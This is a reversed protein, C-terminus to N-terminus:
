RNGKVVTMLTGQKQAPFTSITPVDIKESPQREWEAAPDTPSTPFDAEDAQLSALSQRFRSLLDSM